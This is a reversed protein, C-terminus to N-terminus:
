NKILKHIFLQDRSKVQVIFTGTPLHAINVINDKIYGQQIIRGSLNYIRYAKGAVVGGTFIIRDTSPNPYFILSEMPQSGISTLFNESMHEFDNDIPQDSYIGFSGPDLTITENIDNVEISQDTMYDYWVGPKTLYRSTEQSEKSTNGFIVINVQPHDYKIWKVDGDSQWSFYEDDLYDTKTKLYIM